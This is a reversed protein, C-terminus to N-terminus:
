LYRRYVHQCVQCLVEREDLLVQVVDAGRKAFSVMDAMPQTYVLKYQVDPPACTPEPAGASAGGASSVSGQKVIVLVELRSLSLPGSVVHKRLKRLSSPCGLQKEVMVGAKQLRHELSLAHHVLNQSSACILVQPFLQHGLQLGGMGSRGLTTLEQQHFYAVLPDLQVEFGFANRQPPGFITGKRQPLLSNICGGTIIGEFEKKDTVYNVSFSIKSYRSRHWPAFGLPLFCFDCDKVTLFSEMLQLTGALANFRATDRGHARLVRAVSALFDGCTSIGGTPLTAAFQLVCSVLAESSLGPVAVAKLYECIRQKMVNSRKINDAILLELGESWPDRIGIGDELVRRVFHAYTWEVTVSCALFKLLPRVAVVVLEASFFADLAEASSGVEQLLISYDCVINYACHWSEHPHHGDVLGKSYVKGWYWRRMVVLFYPYEFEAFASLVSTRLQCTRGDNLLLKYGLGDYASASSAASQVFLPAEFRIAGRSRFEQTYRRSLEVNIYSSTLADDPLHEFFLLARDRSVRRGFLSHLLQTSEISNPYQTIVQYLVSTDLKNSAFLESQLLQTASPRKSPDVSLMSELIKFLRGDVRSQFDAPWKKDATSFSSLVESREMTTSFPPSLMEFLVVGAAFIDVKEDYTDGREQEPSMYHITGVVGTPTPTGSASAPDSRLKATLGFDGLKISLADDESNLFINSPKIDRHIIGKEHIYSLAELIQRFLEVVLQPADVLRCDSIANFLTDEACYEMLIFLYKVPKADRRRRNQRRRFNRDGGSLLMNQFKVKRQASTNVRFGYAVSKYPDGVELDPPQSPKAAFSLYVNAGERRPDVLNERSMIEEYPDEMWADYYRVIYRHQLSALVAAEEHLVTGPNKYIAIQKLAYVIGNRCVKTVRGFSGSGLVKQHDFERYYRSHVALIHHLAGSDLLKSGMTDAARHRGRPSGRGFYGSSSYHSFSADSSLNASSDEVFGRGRSAASSNDKFNRLSATSGPPLVTQQLFNYIGSVSAYLSGVNEGQSTARLEAIWKECAKVFKHRANSVHLLEVRINSQPFDAPVDVGILITTDRRGNVCYACREISIVVELHCAKTPVDGLNSEEFAISASSADFSERLSQSLFGGDVVHVAVGHLKLLNDIESRILQSPSRASTQSM